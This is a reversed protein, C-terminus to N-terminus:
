VKFRCFIWCRSTFSVMVSRRLSAFGPLFSPCALTPSLTSSSCASMTSWRPQPIRCVSFEPFPAQVGLVLFTSPRIIPCFFGFFFNCQVVCSDPSSSPDAVEIIQYTRSAADILHHNFGLGSSPQDMKGTRSPKPCSDTRFKSSLLCANPVTTANYRSTAYPHSQLSMVNFYGM